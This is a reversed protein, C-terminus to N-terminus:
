AWTVPLRRTGRGGTRAPPRRRLARRTRRRSRKVAHGGCKWVGGSAAIPSALQGVRQLISEAPEFMVLGSLWVAQKTM